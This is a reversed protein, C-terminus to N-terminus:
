ENATEAFDYPAPDRPQDSLGLFVENEQPSCWNLSGDLASAFSTCASDFFWVNQSPQLCGGDKQKPDSYQLKRVQEKLRAERKTAQNREREIIASKAKVEAELDEIKEMLAYEHAQKRKLHEVEKEKENNAYELMERTMTIRETSKRKYEDFEKEKIKMEEMTKALVHCMNEMREKSEVTASENEVSSQKLQELEDELRQMRAAGLEATEAYLTEWKSVEDELDRIVAGQNNRKLNDLQTRLNHNTERLELISEKFRANREAYLGLEEEYSSKIERLQQLEDVEYDQLFLHGTQRSSKSQQLAAGQVEALPLISSTLIESEESHSSNEPSGRKRELLMGWSSKYKSSSM